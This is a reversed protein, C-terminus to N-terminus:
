EGKERARDIVADIDPVDVEPPGPSDVRLAVGLVRLTRLVLGIEARRKGQEVENVWLRSVGVRKALAGQDLGMARRRSRIILGFDKPTRLIM